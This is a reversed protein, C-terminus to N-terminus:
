EATFRFETHSKFTNGPNLVVSPFDPHNPSDPAHQTELAIGAYQGYVKGATKAAFAGCMDQAGYVQMCPETTLVEMQRGSEPDRLLAAPKLKDGKPSLVFNHDYWNGTCKIAACNKMWDAKGGIARAERFDFGTGAVPANKIPILGDDTVMYEEAYIALEQKLVDGSAEGAMNWYSHLTPNIITPKDTTAEYDVSLVNNSHLRYTIKCKVEGPFGMDGDPSVLTMVLGEVYPERLPEVQWLKTDWGLPGGHLNCNRTETKENIALTYEKGGLTFKGDRIRNGYRGIQTGVCFGNVEYEAATNFGLTVDALNGHRDPAYLRVLRAGYDSIEAIVGGRSRLTYLRTDRGDALKGFPRSPLKDVAAAGAAFQLVAASGAILTKNM